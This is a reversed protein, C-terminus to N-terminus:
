SDMPRLIVGQWIICLITFLSNKCAYRRKLYKEETKLKAVSLNLALTNGVTNGQLYAVSIEEGVLLLYSLEESVVVGGGAGEGLQLELPRYGVARHSSQSGAVVAIRPKGDYGLRGVLAHVQPSNREVVIEVAHYGGRM